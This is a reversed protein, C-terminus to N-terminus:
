DATNEKLMEFEKLTFNFKSSILMKCSDTFENKKMCDVIIKKEDDGYKILKGVIIVSPIVIFLLILTTKSLHYFWKM